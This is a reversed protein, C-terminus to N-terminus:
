RKVELRLARTAEEDLTIMEDFVVGYDSQATAVTVFGLEVDRLVLQPDRDFPSGYGGGGPLEMLISDGRQLDLPEFPPSEGNVLLRGSVADKGGAAGPPPYLINNPRLTVQVPLDSQASIEIRQGLGGRYQGAGASDSWFEKREVRIPAKNELIEVPAMSGNGPFRITSMGDGHASGGIGGDPILSTAFSQGDTDWGRAMMAWFTGAGGHVLEPKAKELAGYIADHLHVVAVSRARVAAPYKCNFISGEPALVTIPRFQGENNPIKPVLTSKMAILIDGHTANLTCNIAGEEVQPSSGALDIQMEDKRITIAIEIHIPKNYGDADIATRYVGDPIARIADRMARDSRWHINSTLTRLDALNYDNLFEILRWNGVTEAAIIGRIDGIVQDSNRVNKAIIEFLLENPRGAKHLKLPPIQLGEEFIERANFYGPKGGIDPVHAVTGIFAVLQGRHFVPTAVCVDPLHGAGWWPDNCILVDGEELTEAPYSQLMYRITRPTTVTFLTTSFTSQALGWGREDTLICAFDGSEGVITSFATRKVTKDTEDMVTILRRWQLELNVPDLELEPLALEDLLLDEPKM